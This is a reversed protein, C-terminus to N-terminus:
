LPHLSNRKVGRPSHGLFYLAYHAYAPKNKLASNSTKRFVKLSKGRMGLKTTLRRFAQGIDDIKVLQVGRLADTKHPKGYGNLLCRDGDRKGYKKLLRFTERWLTWTVEPAGEHRQTKSRKRTITGDTWNVETPTLDSVDIQTFGCNMMLLLYLKLKESAASLLAQVEAVEWVQVKNSQPIINLSKDDLNRPCKDLLEVKYCWRTFMKATTM